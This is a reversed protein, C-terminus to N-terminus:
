ETPMAARALSGLAIVETYSGLDYKPDAAFTQTGDIIPGHVSTTTALGDILKKAVDDRDEIVKAQYSAYNRIVNTPPQHTAPDPELSSNTDITYRYGVGIHEVYDGDEGHLSVNGGMLVHTTSHRGLVPDNVAAIELRCWPAGMAVKGLDNMFPSSVFLDRASTIALEPDIEVSARVIGPATVKGKTLALAELNDSTSNAWMVGAPRLVPESGNHYPIKKM